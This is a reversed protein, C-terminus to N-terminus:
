SAQTCLVPVHANAVHVNRHCVYIGHTSADSMWENPDFTGLDYICFRVHSKHRHMVRM